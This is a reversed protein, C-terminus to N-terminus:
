VRFPRIKTIISPIIILLNHVEGDDYGHPIMMDTLPCIASGSLYWAKLALQITM